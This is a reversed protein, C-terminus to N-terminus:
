YGPEKYLTGKKPAIESAYVTDMWTERPVEEIAVSVAREPVGCFAMVNQAIAEALQQKVEESRGPYLKVVVHPM